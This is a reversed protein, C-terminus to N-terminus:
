PSGTLHFGNVVVGGVFGIQGGGGEAPGVWGSVMTRAARRAPAHANREPRRVASVRGLYACVETAAVTMLETYTSPGGVEAIDSLLPSSPVPLPPPCLAIQIFM